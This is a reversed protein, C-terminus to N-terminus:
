PRIGGAHLTVAQRRVEGGVGRAVRGGVAAVVERWHHKLVYGPETDVMEDDDPAVVGDPVCVDERRPAHREDRDRLCHVVVDAIGLVADSERRRDGPSLSSMLRCRVVSPDCSRMPTNRIKPRSAPKLASWM